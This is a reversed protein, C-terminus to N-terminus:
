GVIAAWPKRPRASSIRALERYLERERESPNEPPVIRAMCFLDGVTGDRRPLGRRPVRLNRTLHAGPKIPIRLPGSLSQIEVIAGLVAEWPTIPVRMYLDHGLVRFLDHKRFVVDIYVDAGTVPFDAIRLRDGEVAGRPIRVTHMREVRRIGGAGDPLASHLPLRVEIGSAAEELSIEAVAIQDQPRPGRGDEVFMAAAEVEFEEIMTSHEPGFDSNLVSPMSHPAESVPGLDSTRQQASEQRKRRLTDRLANSAESMRTSSPRGDRTTSPDLSNLDVSITEPSHTPVAPIPALHSPNFPTLEAHLNCAVLRFARESESYGAAVGARCFDRGSM